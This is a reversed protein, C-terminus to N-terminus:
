PAGDRRLGAASKYENDHGLRSAPCGRRKPCSLYVHIAPVPTSDPSMASVQQSVYGVCKDAPLEITAVRIPASASATPGEAARPRIAVREGRFAKPVKWHRGKFSVYSKTPSTRVIEGAATSSASPLAKADSEFQTTAVLRCRNVSAEHPREINYVTVGVELASLRLFTTSTDCRSVEAKLTRNFRENKGRSQPHYPRSLHCRCRAQAAVGRAREISDSSPDGWPTGNDVFFAEPLGYRRFTRELRERCRTAKNTRARRSVSPM